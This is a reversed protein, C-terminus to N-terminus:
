RRSGSSSIPHRPRFSRRSTIRPPRRRLCLGDDIEAIEFCRPAAFGEPLADLLGSGFTLAERQWYDPHAPDATSAIVIGNKRDAAGERTFVMWKGDETTMLDNMSRSNAMISDTIVPKFTSDGVGTAENFRTVSYPFYPPGDGDQTSARESEM